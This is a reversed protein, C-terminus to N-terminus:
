VTVPVAPDQELVAIAVTVTVGRGVIVTFEGVIQLPCVALKVAPPPEEYVHLAPAVEVPVFVASAEGEELVVYVTVPVTPEQELVAIAVTVTVGKGVIVTLEGVIQGPCVALKVAPPPVEYVHLAPAVEVPVFM